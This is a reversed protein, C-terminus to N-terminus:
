AFCILNSPDPYQGPQCTSACLSAPAVPIPSQQFSNNCSLCNTSSSCTNCPYM